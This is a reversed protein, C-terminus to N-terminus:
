VAISISFFLFDLSIFLHMNSPTPAYLSVQEAVVKKIYQAIGMKEMGGTTGDTGEAFYLIKRIKRM